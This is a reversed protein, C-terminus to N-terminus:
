FIPMGPSQIDYSSCLAKYFEHKYFKRYYELLALMTEASGKSPSSEAKKLVEARLGSDKASQYYSVGQKKRLYDHMKDIVMCLPSLVAQCGLTSIDELYKGM